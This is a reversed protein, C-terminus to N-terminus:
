QRDEINLCFSFAFEERKEKVTNPDADFKEIFKVAKVPLSKAWYRRRKLKFSINSAEVRISTLGARLAGRAIPCDECSGPRGWAIDKPTVEIKIKM